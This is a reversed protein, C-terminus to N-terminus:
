LYGLYFNKIDENEKLDESLGDLVIKGNVIVYGFESINIAAVANQEVLLISTKQEENIKTITDFITNTVVPALGLSPEDLLMLKPFAMLARGLVLMQQEGGSLYGSTRRALRKLLPFYSYVLELNNKLDVNIKRGYTGMKLNEETTLRSIIRRGEMVQVIGIKYIDEPELIDIRKDNFEITGTTIKGEESKLLGSIAKLTTSKGAGNSGLLCVLSGDNVTLSVDSLALITGKFKVELNNVRLM